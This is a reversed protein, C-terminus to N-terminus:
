FPLNTLYSSISVDEFVKNNEWIGVIAVLRDGIFVAPHKHREWPPISHEQFIKKAKDGKQKFKITLINEHWNIYEDQPLTAATTIPPVIFLRDRYRRFIFSGCNLIPNRDVSAGIVEKFLINLHELSCVQYNNSDLWHRIVETQMFHSFLKLKSISITNTALDYCSNYNKQITTQLETMSDQCINGARSIADIVRPWRDQLEPLIENRLFNRDFNDSKNSPDDYWEINNTKAYNLIEDKSTYLFPCFKFFHKYKSYQKIGGLGKLGTGKILRFLITEAQDNKHHALLLLDNTQLHQGFRQYRIERAQEELSQKINTDLKISEIILELNLERCRKSILDQWKGSIVQLNHNIHIIKIKKDLKSKAIVDLLVMSDVGGSVAVLIDNFPPLHSPPFIVEM